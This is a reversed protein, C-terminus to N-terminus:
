ESLSAVLAGRATTYLPESALRIESIELPLSAEQFLKEFRDRFGAPLTSGGSLVLPVARGLRPASKGSQFADRLGQIIAKMMDDYYVSLAQHVKTPYHGNFHFADEKTIRIRNALEGTASAASSDVFDGGKPISFSLVPISMYSVAVNCLGGGCSVGIGTYNSDALESYVVAMGENVSKVEYGLEALMGRLSVEHYTLNEEAGLPAAPVSFCVTQGKGEPKLMSSVIQRIQSLSEPENPNLVGRTMPRRTEHNMLDAFRASENGFVVIEPGEVTYPVNEKKLVGETMKSYPITVFANLQAQFDYSEGAQRATVIRSTGIDLGIAKEKSNSM